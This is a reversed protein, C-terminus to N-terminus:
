FFNFIKKVLSFTLAETFGAQAVGERLQSELKNLPFQAAVTPTPPLKAEINSYGYSIAIDEMIDCLHLIDHRTPPIEVCIKGAEPAVSSKLGMRSLSDAM